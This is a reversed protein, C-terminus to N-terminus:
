SRKGLDTSVKAFMPKYAIALAAIWSIFYTSLFEWGFGQVPEGLVQYLPLGHGFWLGGMVLDLGGGGILAFLLTYWGTRRGEKLLTHAIVCPLAAGIITYIGAMFFHLRAHPLLRMQGETITFSIAFQAHEAVIVLAGLVMLWSAAKLPGVRKRTLVLTLIVALAIVGGVQAQEQVSM